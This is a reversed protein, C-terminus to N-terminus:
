GEQQNTVSKFGDALVFRDHDFIFKAGEAINRVAIIPNV